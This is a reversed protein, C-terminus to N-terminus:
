VNLWDMDRKKYKLHVKPFTAIGSLMTPAHGLDQTCSECIKATKFMCIEMSKDVCCANILHRQIGQLHCGGSSGPLTNPVLM